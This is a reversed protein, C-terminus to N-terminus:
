KGHAHLIDFTPGNRTWEMDGQTNLMQSSSKVWWSHGEHSVELTAPPRSEELVYMAPFRCDCLHTVDPFELGMELYAAAPIVNKR